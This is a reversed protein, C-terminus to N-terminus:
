RQVELFLKVFCQDELLKILQTRIQYGTPNKYIILSSPDELLKIV